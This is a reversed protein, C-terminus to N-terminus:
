KFVRGQHVAEIHRKLGCGQSFSLDCEPCKHPKKKEHVASIHQKLM